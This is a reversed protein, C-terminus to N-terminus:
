PQRPCPVDEELVAKWVQSCNDPNGYGMDERVKAIGNVVALLISDPTCVATATSYREYLEMMLRASFENTRDSVNREKMVRGWRCSSWPLSLRMRRWRRGCM